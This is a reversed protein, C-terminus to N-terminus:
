DKIERLKKQVLLALEEAVLKGLAKGEDRARAARAIAEVHLAILPMDVAAGARTAADIYRCLGNAITGAPGVGAIAAMGRIEHAQAHIEKVDGGRSANEMRGVGELVATWMADGSKQLIESAQQKLKESRLVFLARSALSKRLMPPYADVPIIRGPTSHVTQRDTM